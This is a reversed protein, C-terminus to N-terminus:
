FTTELLAELHFGDLGHMWTKFHRFTKAMSWPICFSLKQSSFSAGSVAEGAVKVLKEQSGHRVM